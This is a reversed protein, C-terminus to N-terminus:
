YFLDWGRIWIQRSRVVVDPDQTYCQQYKTCLEKFSELQHHDDCSNSNYENRCLHQEILVNNYELKNHSKIDYIVQVCFYILCALFIVIISGKAWQIIKDSLTKYRIKVADKQSGDAYKRQSYTIEAGRKLQEVINDAKNFLSVPLQSQFVNKEKEESM